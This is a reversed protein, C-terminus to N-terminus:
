NYCISKFLDFISLYKSGFQLQSMPKNKFINESELYHLFAYTIRDLEYLSTIVNLRLPRTDSNNNLMCLCHM